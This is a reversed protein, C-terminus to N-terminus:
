CSGGAGFLASNQIWSAHPMNGFPVRSLSIDPFFFVIAYCYQRCYNFWSTAWNIPVLAAWFKEKCQTDFMSCPHCWFPYYNHYMTNHHWVCPTAWFAHIQTRVRGARCVPSHSWCLSSPKTQCGVEATRRRWMWSTTTSDHTIWLSQTVCYVQVALIM